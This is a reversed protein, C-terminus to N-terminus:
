LLITVIRDRGNYDQRLDIASAQPILSKAMEIVAMGQNAGIELYIVGRPKLYHPAQGLLRRISDLGEAGAELALQPEYDRVDPDLQRYDDRSIYPLNAVIVDVRNQDIKNELPSILDGHLLSVQSRKDLRKINALAVAIADNSVDIAYVDINPCCTAVAIAIAGCGTGVDVVSLRHGPPLNDSRMDIQNIVMDVLLETEPRPILVRHDVIFDLGYFEKRGILYAVPEYQTRRVILDTFRAAEHETLKYDHHAFLYGRDVGLVHALMTQADLQPSQHGVSRLRETASVLARGIPTDPTLTWVIRQWDRVTPQSGAQLSTPPKSTPVRHNSLNGQESPYHETHTANGTHLDDRSNLPEQRTRILPNSGIERRQSPASKSFSRAPRVNVRLIAM